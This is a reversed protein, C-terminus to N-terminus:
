GLHSLDVLIVILLESGDHAVEYEVIVHPKWGGICKVITYM